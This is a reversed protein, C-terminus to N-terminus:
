KSKLSDIINRGYNTLNLKESKSLQILIGLNMPQEFDIKYDNQTPILYPFFNVSYNEKIETNPNTISSDNYIQKYYEIYAEDSELKLYGNELILYIEDNSNIMGLVNQNLNKIEQSFLNTSFFLITIFLLKM